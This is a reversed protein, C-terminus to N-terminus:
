PAASQTMGPVPSLKWLAAGDRNKAVFLTVRRDELVSAAGHGPSKGIGLLASEVAGYSRSLRV